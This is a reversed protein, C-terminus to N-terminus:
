HHVKAITKRVIPLLTSQIFSEKILLLLVIYPIGLACAELLLQLFANMGTLTHAVFAGIAFSIAFAITIRGFDLYERIEQLFDRVCCARLILTGGEIGVSASAAGVIGFKPILVICLIVGILLGALNIIAYLREQGRAIIYQSLITNIPSFLITTSIVMLATRAGLYQNGGLILIIPDACIVIGAIFLLGVIFLFNLNKAVLQATKGHGNEQSEYYSLRPLMVSGVSNVASGAINRIKSVLQYLGMAVNTGIFGLFLMDLQGYMGSSISSITFSFMPKFHRRLCLKRHLNFHVYKHLRILNFLNSGTSGIILIIAYIRYDSAQHVFAFMLILGLVKFILNRATIYGYQEIGQYFWNIGCTTLWISLSFILMLPEDECAKPITFTMVLFVAYTIATSIILITMLEQTLVSLKERDDRVKAVERIGYANIGLVAVLSFYSVFTQAWSIAGMGSPGIVRSVYPVTILPFIFSSTTLIMNMVVNYKVSRIRPKKETM